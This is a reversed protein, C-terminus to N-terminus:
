MLANPVTYKNNKYQIKYERVIQKMHVTNCKPPKTKSTDVIEHILLDRYEQNLKDDVSITRKIISTEDSCDNGASNEGSQRYVYLADLVPRLLKGDSIFLTLTEDSSQFVRSHNSYHVRMGFARTDTALKYRATDITIQEIEMADSTLATEQWYHSLVTSSVADVILVDIDYNTMDESPPYNASPFALIVINKSSDDPKVKCVSLSEDLKTNASKMLKPHLNSAIKSIYEADCKTAAHCMKTPSILALCTLFLNKSLFTLHPKRFLIM